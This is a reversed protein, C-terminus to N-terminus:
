QFLSRTTKEFMAKVWDDYEETPLRLVSEYLIGFTDGYHTDIDPLKHGDRLVNVLARIKENPHYHCAVMMAARLVDLTAKM